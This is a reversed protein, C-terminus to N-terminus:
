ELLIKQMVGNHQNHMSQVPQKVNDKCSGEEIFIQTVKSSDYTSLDCRDIFRTDSRSALIYNDFYFADTYIRKNISYMSLLSNVVINRHIIVTGDKLESKLRKFNETHPLSQYFTRLYNNHYYTNQDINVVCFACLGVMIWRYIPHKQDFHVYSVAYLLLPLLSFMAVSFIKYTIYPSLVFYAISLVILQLVVILYLEISKKRKKKRFVEAVFYVIGCFFLVRLALGISPHLMVTQVLGTSEMFPGYAIPTLSLLGSLPFQELLGGIEKERSISIM